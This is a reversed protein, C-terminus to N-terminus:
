TVSFPSSLIAYFSWNDDLTDTGDTTSSVFFDGTEPRYAVGEPYVVEGPLV